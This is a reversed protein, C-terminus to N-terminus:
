ELEGFVPLVNAATATPASKVSVPFVAPVNPELRVNLTLLSGEFTCGELELTVDCRVNAVATLQATDGIQYMVKDFKLSVEIDPASPTLVYKIRDNATNTTIALLSGDQTGVAVCANPIVGYDLVLNKVDLCRVATDSSDLISQHMWWIRENEYDALTIYFHETGNLPFETIVPDGTLSGDPAITYECVALGFLGLKNALTRGASGASWVIKVKNGVVYWNIQVTRGTGSDRYSYNKFSPPIALPTNTLTNSELDHKTWNCVGQISVGTPNATTPTTVYCAASLVGETIVKYPQALAVGVVGRGEYVPSSYGTDTRQLPTLNLNIADTTRLVIFQSNSSSLNLGGGAHYDQNLHLVCRGASDDGIYEIDFNGTFISAPVSSYDQNKWVKLLNSSATANEMSTVVVLFYLESECLIRVLGNFTDGISGQTYSVSTNLGCFVVEGNEDSVITTGYTYYRKGKTAGKTSTFVSTPIGRMLSATATFGANYNYNWTFVSGQVDPVFGHNRRTSNKGTDYQWLEGNLPHMSSHVMSTPISLKKGSQTLDGSYLEGQRYGFNNFMVEPYQILDM